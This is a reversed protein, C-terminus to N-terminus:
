KGGIKVEMNKNTHLPMSSNFPSPICVHIPQNLSIIDDDTFVNTNNTTVTDYESEVDVLWVFVHQESTYKRMDKRQDELSGRELALRVDTYFQRLLPACQDAEEDSQLIYFHSDLDETDKLDDKAEGLSEQITRQNQLEEAERYSTETVCYSYQPMKDIWCEKENNENLRLPQYDEICRMLVKAQDSPLTAKEFRQNALDVYSETRQEKEEQEEASKADIWAQLLSRFIDELIEENTELIANGESHMSSPDFIPAIMWSHPLSSFAVARVNETEEEVIHFMFFFRHHDSGSVFDVIAKCLNCLDMNQHFYAMSSERFVDPSDFFRVKM